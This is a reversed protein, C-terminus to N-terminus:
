SREGKTVPEGALPIGLAQCLRRCEVRDKPTPILLAVFGDEANWEGSSLRRVILGDDERTPSIATLHGEQEVFGVSKLWDDTVPEGDYGPRLRSLEARLRENEGELQRIREDRADVADALLPCLTRYASILRGIPGEIGLSYVKSFEVYGYDTGVRESQTYPWPKNNAADLRRVEALLAPLDTPKSM